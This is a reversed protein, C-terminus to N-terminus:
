RPSVVKLRVPLGQITGLNVAQGLPYSKEPALELFKFQSIWDAPSLKDSLPLLFQETQYQRRASNVVSLSVQLKSPVGKQFAHPSVMVLLSIESERSDSNKSVSLHATHDPYEIAVTADSALRVSLLSVQGQYTASLKLSDNKLLNPVNQVIFHGPLLEMRPPRAYIPTIALVPAAIMNRAFLGLHFTSMLGILSFSLGWAIRPIRRHLYALPLIALVMCDLSFLTMMFVGRRAVVLADEGFPVYVPYLDQILARFTILMAIAIPVIMLMGLLWRPPALDNIQQAQVPDVAGQARWRRYRTVVLVSGWALSTVWSVVCGVILWFVRTGDGPSFLFWPSACLKAILVFGALTYALLLAGDVPFESLPQQGPFENQCRRVRRWIRVGMGVQCLGAVLLFVRTFRLGDYTLAVLGLLEIGTVLYAAMWLQWERPPSQWAWRKFPFFPWEYISPFQRTFNLVRFWEPRCWGLYSYWAVLVLLFVVEGWLIGAVIPVFLLAAAGKIVGALWGILNGGAVKTAVSTGIGALGIKGLSSTLAPPAAIASQTTLCTVLATMPVVLGARRLTDRLCDIGEVLRRSVTSQHVGLSNAIDGQTAGELYCMLIPVRLEDPLESLAQDVLPAIENWSPEASPETQESATITRELGAEHERTRRRREGRLRNLARHTAARHLWGVLSTRIESAQRALDFFCEQTLEDADHTNATIRLCTGYVLSTHRRVLELFSEPTRSCSYRNLLLHDSVDSSLPHNAVEPVNHM